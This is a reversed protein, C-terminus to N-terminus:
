PRRRPDTAFSPPPVENATRFAPRAATGREELLLPELDLVLDNEGDAGLYLVPASEVTAARLSEIEELLLRHEQRMREAQEAAASRRAPRWLALTAAILLLLAAALGWSMASRRRRRGDRAELRELVEATFGPSASDGPLSELATSLWDENTHHTM